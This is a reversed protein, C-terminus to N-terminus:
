VLDLSDAFVAVVTAMAGRGEPTKKLRPAVEITIRGLILIATVAKGVSAARAAPAKGGVAKAIATIRDNVRWTAASRQKKADPTPKTRAWAVSAAALHDSVVENAQRIMPASKKCRSLIEEWGDLPLSEAQRLFEDIRVAIDAKVM